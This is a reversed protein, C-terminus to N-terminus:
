GMPLATWEWTQWMDCQGFLFLFLNKQARVNTKVSSPLWNPCSLVPCGAAFYFGPKFVKGMHPLFTGGDRGLHWWRCFRGLWYQSLPFLNSNGWWKIEWKCSCCPRPLPCPFVTVHVGPFVRHVWNKMISDPYWSNETYDPHQSGFQFHRFRCVICWLPYIFSFAFTIKTEVQVELTAFNQADRLSGMGQLKLAIGLLFGYHKPWIWCQLLWVCEM